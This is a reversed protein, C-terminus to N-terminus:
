ACVEEKDLTGMVKKYNQKTMQKPQAQQRITRIKTIIKQEEGFLVLYVGVILFFAMIGLSMNTQFDITGWMPCTDGHSCSAKIIESLAFNFSIIILGILLSIAIVLVGVIRNRM